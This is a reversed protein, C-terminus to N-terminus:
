VALQKEIATFLEACINIGYARDLERVCTPSTVNVETLRGGIIDIGAFLIGRRLMEPGVAEALQREITGIERPEGRGGRALNGRFDSSNPIRALMYPVAKGAVLLVRLDGDRIAELYQQAMIREQGEDTLTEIIVNLNPDDAHTMFISQGGMGDLPKLVCRGQQKVFERLREAQGSVLTDPIWEPFWLAALKENADRLAQPRNVVMVGQHEAMELIYTAYIYQMDFPPDKRMLIVDFEKLSLIQQEGLSYWDDNQDRVKISHAAVRPDANDLWLQNVEAILCQYGRNQAEILMAVTTDKYPKIVTPSDMIVLMKIM